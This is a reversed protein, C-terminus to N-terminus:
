TKISRIYISLFSHCKITLDEADLACNKVTSQPIALPHYEKVGEDPADPPVPCMPGLVCRPWEEEAEPVDFFGKKDKHDPNSGDQCTYAIEEQHFDDEFHM